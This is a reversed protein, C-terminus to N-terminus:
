VAEQHRSSSQSTQPTITGSLGLSTKASFLHKSVCPQQTIIVIFMIIIM